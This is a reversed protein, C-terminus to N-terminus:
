PSGGTCDTFSTAQNRNKESQGTAIGASDIRKKAEGAQDALNQMVGRQLGIAHHLRDLFQYHHRMLEATTQTRSSNGWRAETDAAYHELQDLQGQASVVHLQIRTLDKAALERARMAGEIALMVSKITSM